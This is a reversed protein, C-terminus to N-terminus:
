LIARVITENEKQKTINISHGFVKLQGNRKFCRGQSQIWIKKENGTIMQYELIVIKGPNNIGNRFTDKVKDLDPPNIFSFYKEWSNGITDSPLDLLEDAVPSIYTETFNM